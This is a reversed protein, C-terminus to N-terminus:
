PKYRFTPQNNKRIVKDWDNDIYFETIRAKFSCFGLQPDFDIMKWEDKKTTAGPALRKKYVAKVVNKGTKTNVPAPKGDWDFCELEITISTINLDSVNKVSFRLRGKGDIYADIWKLSKEWNGIKVRLSTEFGGDETTGTIITEGRSIGTIRVRSSDSEPAVTAVSADATRWTMNHNTAKAPELIAGATSTQNLDIYGVRRKMHVGTVHQFVKVRIRAQRNSGDTSVATVNAEGAAIGTITGDDSVKLIKENSSTLKLAPNSANAPEITWTLQATEGNYVTPATGFAISKVPQQVHIVAKAQVEDNAESRCFIECEGLAVATVRGQANVTAISEDSSLWVVKKNDADKPLVTAKLIGTRGVDVTLEPKDLEIEEANQTVQINLNARINSGDAATALVRVNGRKVGTVIGNQDVTAIREDASSWTAQKRTADEPAYIATLTMTEGVAVSKASATVSIRNVLQIVAVRYQLTVSPDEQSAITLVSEGPKM